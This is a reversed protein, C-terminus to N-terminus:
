RAKVIPGLVDAIDVQGRIARAAGGQWAVRGSIVGAYMERFLGAFAPSLGFSTFTPVVADLAADAAAVPRGTLTTLAAAVDDASYDRPGALEIRVDGRPGELLAAAAAKGIDKTAVMPFVVGRPVFTPLAGQALMGLAGAWNEM